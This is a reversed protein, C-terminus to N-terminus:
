HLADKEQVTALADSMAEADGLDAKVVPDSGVVVDVFASSPFVLEDRMERAMEEAGERTDAYGLRKYAYVPWYESAM